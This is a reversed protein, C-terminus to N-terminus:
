AFDAVRDTRGASRWCFHGRARFNASLQERHMAFQAFRANRSVQQHKFAQRMGLVQKGRISWFTLLVKGFNAREQILMELFLERFICM